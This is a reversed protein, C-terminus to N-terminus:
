APRQETVVDIQNSIARGFSLELAAQTALQKVYYSEAHGTIRIEDADAEIALEAVADGTRLQVLRYLEPEHSDSRTGRQM